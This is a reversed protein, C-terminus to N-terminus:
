NEKCLDTVNQWKDDLLVQVVKKAMHDTIYPEEGWVTKMVGDVRKLRRAWKQCQFTIGDGRNDIRIVKRWGQGDRTGTVKIMMGVTVNEEAWKAVREDRSLKTTRRKKNKEEEANLRANREADWNFNKAVSLALVFDLKDDAEVGLAVIAKLALQAESDGIAQYLAEFIPNDVTYM